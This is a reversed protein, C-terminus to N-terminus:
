LHELRLLRDQSHTIGLLWRATRRATKRHHVLTTGHEPPKPQAAHWLKLFEEYPLFVGRGAKEFVSELEKYPVYITKERLIQAAPTEPTEPVEPEEQAALIATALLGCVVHFFKSM